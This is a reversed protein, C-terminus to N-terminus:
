RIAFTLSAWLSEWDAKASPSPEFMHVANLLYAGRASLAIQARGDRDTVTTTPNEPAAASFTTITMGASPKGHLLLRVPLTAGPALGYPNREAVLEFPLGLARDAGASDGVGLLLKTNRAYSEVIGTEPKGLTKHREALTGYGIKHAYKEFAAHTDFTQPEYAGFYGFVKLGPESFKIQVAPLDGDFGNVKRERGGDLVIYRPHWETVFPLDDGKFFPDYIHRISIEKDPALTYSSPELWFEHARASAASMAAFLLLVPITAKRFHRM